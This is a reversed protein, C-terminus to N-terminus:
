IELIQARYSHKDDLIGFLSLQGDRMTGPYFLIVKYRSPNNVAEFATLFENARLFPFMAGIGHLFVYPRKLTPDQKSFHSVVQAHVYDLFKRGHAKESLSKMVSDHVYSTEATADSTLLHDLRSKDGFKEGALYEMFVAFLDLSLIDIYDAPRKLDDVIYAINSLTEKEKRVDYPVIYFNYSIGGPSQFDKNNLKNYLEQIM